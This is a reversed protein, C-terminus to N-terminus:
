PRAEAFVSSITVWIMLVTIASEGNLHFSTAGVFPM